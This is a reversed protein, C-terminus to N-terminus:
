VPPRAWTEEQPFPFRFFEALPGGLVYSGIVDDSDWFFAAGESLTVQFPYADLYAQPSVQFTGEEGPALSGAWIRWCPAWCPIFPPTDRQSRTFPFSPRTPM